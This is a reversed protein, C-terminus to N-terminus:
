KSTVEGRSFMFAGLCLRMEKETGTSFFLVNKEKLRFCPIKWTFFVRVIRVDTFTKGFSLDMWFLKYYKRPISIMKYYKYERANSTCSADLDTVNFNLLEAGSNCQLSNSEDILTGPSFCYSELHKQIVWLRSRYM